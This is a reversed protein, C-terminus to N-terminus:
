RHASMFRLTNRRKYVVVQASAYAFGKVGEPKCELAGVDHRSSTGHEHITQSNLRRGGDILSHQTLKGTCFLL